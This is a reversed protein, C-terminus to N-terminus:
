YKVSITQQDAVDFAGATIIKDGPKLGDLIEIKDKYSLGTKVFVKKAIEGYKGNEVVFVFSNDGSKQIVALPALITNEKTIDNIAVSCYQNPRLGAPLSPLKIEVKFTRNTPNILKTIVSIKAEVNKNLDPFNIVVPDGINMSSIYNESVEATVKVGSMSTLKIVPVGPSVIEGEKPVVGDIMGSFPAIIKSYSIQEKISAVRKELQEKQNKAQLYQVESGAKQDWLRKQKNYMTTAFDLGNQVEDLNKKLIEDDIQILRDGTKVVAGPQVYVKVIQGAMKSSINAAKESEVTGQVDIFRRFLEPKIELVNVNVINGMDSNSGNTSIDKELSAIKNQIEASQSKLKALESKKTEASNGRQSCSTNAVILIAALSFLLPKFVNSLNFSQVKFNKM